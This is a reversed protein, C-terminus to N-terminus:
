GKKLIQCANYNLNYFEDYSYYNSYQTEFMKKINCKTPRSDYIECKNNELNLFQCIGDGRDLDKYMESQNLNMCCLGCSDCFFEYNM